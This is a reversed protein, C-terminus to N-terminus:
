DNGYIGDKDTEHYTKAKFTYSEHPEDLNEHEEVLQKWNVTKIRTNPKTTNDPM